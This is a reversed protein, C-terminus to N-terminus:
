DEEKFEIFQTPALRHLDKQSAVMQWISVTWPIEELVKQFHEHHFTPDFEYILLVAQAPLRTERNMPPYIVDTNKLNL